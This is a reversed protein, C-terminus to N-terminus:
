PPGGVHAYLREDAEAQRLYDLEARVGERLDRVIPGADLGRSVAGAMAIMMAVNSLDHEIAQRVGPYQVKVAVRTGDSLEARHVQGISAAAFPERQFRRFVRGPPRGFEREFVDEVLNFAMPPASSQLASLETMMEPPVIGSMLSLIQGFKMVAGKMEGMTRVVDEATRMVSEDRKRRR